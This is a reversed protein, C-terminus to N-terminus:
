LGSGSPSGLDSFISFGPVTSIQLESGDWTRAGRDRCTLGEALLKFQSPLRQVLLRVPRQSLLGLNKYQQCDHQEVHDCVGVPM